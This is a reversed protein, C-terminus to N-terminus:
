SEENESLAPLSVRFSFVPRMGLVRGWHLPPHTGPNWCMWLENDFAWALVNFCSSKMSRGQEGVLLCGKYWFLTGLLLIQLCLAYGLCHMNSHKCACYGTREVRKSTGGGRGGNCGGILASGHSRMTPGTPRGRGRPYARFLPRLEIPKTEEINTYVNHFAVSAQSDHFAFCHTVTCRACWLGSPWFIRIQYM